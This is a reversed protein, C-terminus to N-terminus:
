PPPELKEALGPADPLAPFAVPRELHSLVVLAITYAPGACLALRWDGAAAGTCTALLATSWFCMCVDCAWPKTGAEVLKAVPALARVALVFGPVTLAVAATILLALIM